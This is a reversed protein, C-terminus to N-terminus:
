RACQSWGAPPPAIAPDCAAPRPRATARARACGNGRGAIEEISGAMVSGEASDVGRV